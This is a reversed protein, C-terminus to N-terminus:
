GVAVVDPVGGVVEVVHVQRPRAVALEDCTYVTERITRVIPSLAANHNAFLQSICGGM